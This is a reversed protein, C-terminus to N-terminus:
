LVALLSYGCVEMDAPCLLFFLLLYLVEKHRARKLESVGGLDGAPSIAKCRKKQTINGKESVTSQQGITLHALHLPLCRLLLGDVQAGM